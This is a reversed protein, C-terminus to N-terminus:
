NFHLPNERIIQLVIFKWMRWNLVLGNEKKETGEAFSDVTPFFSDTREFLSFKIANTYKAGLCPEAM